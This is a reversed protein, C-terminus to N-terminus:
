PITQAIRLIEEAYQRRAEPLDAWAGGGALFDDLRDPGWNYAVLMWEKGQYGRAALRTRLFDLYAAAVLVNDRSDFPDAANVAPAWERWTGPLIQMLGMAGASSLVLSDFSSEIYAQAALMRWDMDYRLAVDQFMQAYTQTASDADDAASVAAAPLPQAPLAAAGGGDPTTVQNPLVLPLAPDLGAADSAPASGAANTSVAPAAPAAVPQSLNVIIVQPPQSAPAQVVTPGDGGRLVLFAIVSVLLMGVAVLMGLGTVSAMQWPGILPRLAVAGRARQVVDPTAAASATVFFPTPQSQLGLLPLHQAVVRLPTTLTQGPRLTLMATGVPAGPTFFEYVCRHQADGAQLRVTASRNGRNSVAVPLLTSRRRWTLAPAAAPLVEVTIADYPLVVLQAGLRASRGPHDHSRVVVVIAYEGAETEARRPPAIELVLTTREGAELTIPPPPALWSEDFWGEVHVLFTAPHRGNNVLVVDLEAVEGPYVQIRRVPLAAVIVDDQRDPIRAPLAVGPSAVEVVTAEGDIEVAGDITIEDGPDDAVQWASLEVPPPRRQGAPDADGPAPPHDAFNRM